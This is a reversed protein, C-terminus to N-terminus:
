SGVEEHMGVEVVVRCSSARALIIQWKGNTRRVVEGGLGCTINSGRIEATKEANWGSLSQLNSFITCMPSGVLLLPKEERVHAEAKRRDEQQDFNWGTVLDMAIGGRLGFKRAEKLM